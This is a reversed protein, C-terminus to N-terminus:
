GITSLTMLRWWAVVHHVKFHNGLLNSCRTLAVRTTLANLNILAVTAVLCSGPIVYLTKTIVLMMLVQYETPTRHSTTTHEASLCTLQPLLGIM